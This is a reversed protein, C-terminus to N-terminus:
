KKYYKNLWLELCILLWLKDSFDIKTSNHATYIKKVFDMNVFEQISNNKNFLVDEVFQKLENKMWYKIPVGFGKKERKFFNPDIYKTALKKLIYKPEAGNLKQNNPITDVFECLDKDLFPSRVELGNAMSARDVKVLYDNILRTKTNNALFFDTISKISSNEFSINKFYEYMFDPTENERLLQEKEHSSFGIQRFLLEYYKSNLYSQYVGSKNKKIGLKNLARQTYIYGDRILKNNINEKLSDAEYAWNYEYYGGFIEDGGDGSLAVKYHKSMEKSILFTAISSVDGFPEGYSDIIATLDNRIDVKLNIETHNTNYRKALLAAEKTENFDDYDFGVTFTNTQNNSFSSLLSVILGSDAGSSLFCSIPVDGVLRKKIAETLKGEVIEINEDISNKNKEGIKRAWYKTETQKKTTLDIHLISSPNLQYVENWITYPQPSSLESLYYSLAKRNITLNTKMSWISRIDSSFLLNNSDISYYLPKKGFRDRILYLENNKKDLLAFAFMGDIKKILEAMGWHIYGYILVETDSNSSFKYNLNELEKKLTKYNYIEGNFTIWINKTIDSMPQSAKETLDIISLRAHALGINKEIFMGDGDPGRQKIFSLMEGLQKNEVNSSDFNVIGCIGCM